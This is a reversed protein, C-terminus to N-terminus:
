RLKRHRSILITIVSQTLIIILFSFGSTESTKLSLVIVDINETVKLGDQNEIIIQLTFNGAKFSSLNYLLKTEQWFPLFQFDEKILVATGNKIQITGNYHYKNRFTNWTSLEIHVDNGENIKNTFNTIEILPETFYREARYGKWERDRSSNFALEWVIEGEPTVETYYAPHDVGLARMGHTGYGFTGLTNGNPLRDADGWHPSYYDGKPSWSWVEKAIKAEEDIEIEVFRSVGLAPNPRTYNYYDNDLLIFRTPSIKEVAHAHYFLTEVKKGQLNYCEMDGVRGVSWVIETTNMDIKYFTDLHRCNFYIYGEEIDWFISNTHMWDWGGLRTTQHLFLSENFPIHISGNFIWLTNNKRDIEYLMDYVIPEGLWEGYREARLLLFTDTFPNYEIDHHGDDEIPIKETNNTAMNWLYITNTNTFMVTTSNILETTGKDKSIYKIDGNMDVIILFGTIERDNKIDIMRPYVFTLGNMAKTKDYTTIIM